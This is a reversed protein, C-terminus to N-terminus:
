HDQNEYRKREKRDATRAFIICIIGIHDPRMVAFPDAFVGVADDFAVGHKRLNSLAKTEDLEFRITM